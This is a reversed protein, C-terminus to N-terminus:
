FQFFWLLYNIKYLAIRCQCHWWWAIIFYTTQHLELPSSDYFSSKIYFLELCFGTKRFVESITTDIKAHLYIKLISIWFFRRFNGRTFVFPIIYIFVCLQIVENASFVKFLVIKWVKQLQLCLFGTPILLSILTIDFCADLSAM